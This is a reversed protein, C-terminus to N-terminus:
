VGYRSKFFNTARGLDEPPYVHSARVGNLKVLYGDADMITTHIFYKNDVCFKVKGKLVGGSTVILVKENKEFERM